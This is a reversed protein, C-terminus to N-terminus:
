ISIIFLTDIPPWLICINVALMGVNWELYLLYTSKVLSNWLNQQDVMEPGDSSPFAGYPGFDICIKLIALILCLWLFYSVLFHHPVFCPGLRALTHGASWIVKAPRGHTPVNGFVMKDIHGTSATSLTDLAWLRHLSSVQGGPWTAHSASKVHPGGEGLRWGSCQRVGGIFVMTRGWCFTHLFHPKAGWGLPKWIWDKYLLSLRPKSPQLVERSTLLGWLLELTSARGSNMQTQHLKRLEPETSSFLEVLIRHIGVSLRSELGDPTDPNRSTPIGMANGWLPHNVLWLLDNM